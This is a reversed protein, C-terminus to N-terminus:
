GKFSFLLFAVQISKQTNFCFCPPDVVWCVSIRNMHLGVSWHREFWIPLSWWLFTSFHNCSCPLLAWGDSKKWILNAFTMLPIHPFPQLQMTTAGMWWIERRKGCRCFEWWNWLPQKLFLRLLLLGAFGPGLCSNFGPLVPCLRWSPPVSRWTLGRSRGVNSNSPLHCSVLCLQLIDCIHCIYRHLFIPFSPYFTWYVVRLKAFHLIKPIIEVLKSITKDKFWGYKISNVSTAM